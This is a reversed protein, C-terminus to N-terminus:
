GRFDFNYVSSWGRFGLPLFYRRGNSINCNIGSSHECSALTVLPVWSPHVVRINFMYFVDLHSVCAPTFAILNPKLVIIGYCCKCANQLTKV